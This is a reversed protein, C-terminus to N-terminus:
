LAAVHVTSLRGQARACAECGEDPCRHEERFTAWADLAEVGVRVGASDFPLQGTCLRMLEELDEWPLGDLDDLTVKPEVLAEVVLRKTVEALDRLRQQFEAAKSPDTQVDLMERAIVADIGGAGRNLQHLAVLERLHDPVADLLALEGLGLVRFTVRQGSKLTANHPGARRKWDALSGAWKGNAAASATRKTPM